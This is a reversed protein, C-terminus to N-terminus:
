YITYFTNINAEIGTRDTDKNAHYVVVEQMNFMPLTNPYGITLQTWSTTSATVTFLSQNALSTAAAGRNAYTQLVGNKRFTPTGANSSFVNNTDGTSAAFIWRDAVQGSYLINTSGSLYKMVNFAYFNASGNLTASLKINNNVLDSISPKGNQLILAGSFVIRPQNLATGQSANNANGSQDYWTTVFGNGAGCFSLLSATDLVNSVFGFDQEANDSSRRVRIAAGTYATRLKRLSYAVAANPYTDLLGTFASIPTITNSTANASGVANTATVQCTISQSVDATVLTYTSNTASGINSGNRKWQYAYTITPTGTWTGTSCTVIQGEQATGTIAPAVTNVPPNGANASALIKNATLYLSNGYGYM